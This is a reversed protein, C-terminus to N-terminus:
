SHRLGCQVTWMQVPLCTYTMLFFIKKESANWVSRDAEETEVKGSLSVWIFSSCDEARNENMCNCWGRLFCIKNNYIRATLFLRMQNCNNISSFLAPTKRSLFYIFRRGQMCENLGKPFASESCTSVICTRYIFAGVYCKYIDDPILQMEFSECINCKKRCMELNCDPIWKCSASLCIKFM